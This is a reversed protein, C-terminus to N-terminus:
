DRTVGLLAIAADIAEDLTAGGCVPESPLPTTGIGAARVAYRRGDRQAVLTLVADVRVRVNRLDSRGDGRDPGLEDTV